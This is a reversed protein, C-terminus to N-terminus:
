IFGLAILWSPKGHPCEGDPEVKCGDTARAIGKEMWREMTPISPPNHRPTRKKSITIIDIM